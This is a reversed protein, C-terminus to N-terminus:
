ADITVPGHAPGSLVRRRRDLHDRHPRLRSPGFQVFSVKAPNIRGRVRKRWGHGSRVVPEDVRVAAAPAATALVIMPVSWTVSRSRAGTSWRSPARRSTGQQDMWGRRELGRPGSRHRASRLPRATKVLMQYLLSFNNVINTRIHVENMLRIRRYADLGKAQHAETNGKAAGSCGRHRAPRGRPDWREPHRLRASLSAAPSHDPVPGPAVRHDCQVIRWQLLTACACVPVSGRRPASASPMNQSTKPPAPAGDEPSTCRARRRRRAPMWSPM